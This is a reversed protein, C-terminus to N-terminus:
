RVLDGLIGAPLIIQFVDRFLYFIVVCITVSFLIICLPRREGYLVMLVAFFPINAAIFGLSPLLALYLIFTGIFIYIRSPLVKPIDPIEDPGLSFIAQILLSISLSFLCVAIVSPFFSPETTNDIARTPLQTTLIGYIICITILVLAAFLNRKQMGTM